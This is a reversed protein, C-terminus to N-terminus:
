DETFDAEETASTDVDTDAKKTEGIQASSGADVTLDTAPGSSLLPPESTKTPDDLITKM